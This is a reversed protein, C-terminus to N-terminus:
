ITSLSILAYDHHTLTSLCSYYYLPDAYSLSFSFFLLHFCSIFIWLMVEGEPIAGERDVQFLM